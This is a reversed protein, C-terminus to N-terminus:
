ADPAKAAALLHPWVLASLEAPTEPCDRRLWDLITGLLGAAILVAATHGQAAAPAAATLDEQVAGATRDLLQNIVRASGEEGLVARYLKRHEVVHAFVQTLLAQGAMDAAPTLKSTAAILEDFMSTCASAALDHVDTYHEYFTSRHVDAQTTVDSISIQNLDQGAILQLLAAELAARSRRSRRDTSRPAPM